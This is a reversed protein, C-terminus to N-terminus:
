HLKWVMARVNYTASAGFETHSDVRMLRRRERKREYVCLCVAASWFLIRHQNALSSFDHVVRLRPTDSFVSHNLLKHDVVLVLEAADQDSEDGRGSCQLLM